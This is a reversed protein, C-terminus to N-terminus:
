SLEPFASSNLDNLSMFMNNEVLIYNHKFNSRFNKISDERLSISPNYFAKCNPRSSNPKDKM